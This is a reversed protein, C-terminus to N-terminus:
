ISLIIKNQCLYCQSFANYTKPKKKNRCGQLTERPNWFTYKKGKRKQQNGGVLSQLHFLSHGVLADLAM